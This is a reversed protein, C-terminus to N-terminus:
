RETTRQKGTKAAGHGGLRVEFDKAFIHIKKARPKNGRLYTYKMSFSSFSIDDRKQNKAENNSEHKCENTPEKKRPPRKEEYIRTYKHPFTDAM